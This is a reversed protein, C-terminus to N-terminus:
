QGGLIAEIEKLRTTADQRKAGDAKSDNAMTRLGQIDFPGPHNNFDLSHDMFGGAIGIRNYVERSVAVVGPKKVEHEGDKLVVSVIGPTAEKPKDAM